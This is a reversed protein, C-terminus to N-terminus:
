GTKLLILGSTAPLTVSEANAIGSGAYTRGGLWFSPVQHGAPNVLVIGNAFAREYVGNALVEYPGAAAGLAKATDYEPFWNEDDVGGNSTSYSARGNAVLLMSALGFTNGAEGGNYSHVFEYKGHGTAWDLEALKASWFPSQRAIGAGGDTWSEEEVGDLHGVWQEWTAVSDAGSVNGFVMLGQARLAPALYALAGTMAGEWSRQTPYEPITLGPQVDRAMPGDILDFFVGDFGYTRALAGANAACAQQYAPNGVDMAYLDTRNPGLVRNGSADHLFWSPHNAVDDAYATCGTVTQMYSYDNQNTFWIAQYVLFRLHPNIAKLMPILAYENGSLVMFQYRNAEDAVPWATRYLYTERNFEAVSPGAVGAAPPSFAGVYMGAAHAILGRQGRANRVVIATHVLFSRRGAYTVRLQLVHKGNRLRQTNMVLKHAHPVAAASWVRQGGVSLVLERAASTIGRLAFFVTGSVAARYPWVIAPGARRVAATGPAACALACVVQACVMLACCRRLASMSGGIM